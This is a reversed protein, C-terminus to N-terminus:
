LEEGVMDGYSSAAVYVLGSVEGFAYSDLLRHKFRPQHHHHHVGFGIPRGSAVKPGASNTAFGRRVTLHLRRNRTM